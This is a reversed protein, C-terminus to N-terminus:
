AVENGLKNNTNSLLKPWGTELLYLVAMRVLVGNSVQNLVKSNSSDASRADIELGRNMPGPHLILSDKKLM